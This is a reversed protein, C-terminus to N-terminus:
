LKLWLVGWFLLFGIELFEMLAGLNDGTLGSFRKEFFRKILLALFFLWGWYILLYILKLFPSFNFFVWILFVLSTFFLAWFVEKLTISTILLAGIGEKKAPKSLYIIPVIFGKSFTASLVFAGWFLEKQLIEKILIFRFFLNLVLAVVGGVGVTSEKMIKLRKEVDKTYDGSSKVWLADATDSFGDLHFIGRILLLILICFLSGLELSLFLSSLYAVLSLLLGEFVGVLPFYGLAQILQSEKVESFKFPIQTLFSFALAINKFM